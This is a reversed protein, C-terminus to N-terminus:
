QNILKNEVDTTFIQGDNKKQEYSICELLIKFQYNCVIGRKVRDMYYEFANYIIESDFNLRKINNLYVEWIFKEDKTEYYKLINLEDKGKKDLNNLFDITKSHEIIIKKRGGKFQKKKTLVNMTSLDIWVLNWANNNLINKDKLWVNKLEKPNEVFNKAVLTKITVDTKKGEPTFLQCTVTPKRGKKLYIRNRKFRKLKKDYIKGANSITYRSNFGEIEVYKTKM